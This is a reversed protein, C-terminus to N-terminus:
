PNLYGMLVVPTRADQVRFQAVIELAQTLGVDQRLAREYAGQIVPGDAMPDSFPAGLEILDAGAEVLAHMLPVTLSPVPDGAVIFPILGKRGRQKLQAFRAAIRSM